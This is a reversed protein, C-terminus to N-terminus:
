LLLQGRTLRSSILRKLIQSSGDAVQVARATQWAETFGIENTFGMGGLTQVATDVVRTAMETAYLKAMAAESVADQGADFLRAAHLGLLHAALVETAREALPFSVGQHEAIRRGFTQRDRAYTAAADLAWRALGVCRGTNYLRGLATGQLGLDLGRGIDGIIWDRGVPLDDFELIAEGSGLHGFMRIVSAVRFGPQDTPVLFASIGGARARVQEPDTAAFILAYDAYPGNTIWQKSGNIVFGDGDPRATTSMQWVDSGADAESMAFCITKEGSIIGPWAEALVASSARSFIHSPGTAWHAVADFALWHHMGGFRFLEEFAALLMVAGGGGGGLSEPTLMQYYGASASAVRIERRAAQIEPSYLGDSDFTQRPDTLIKGLKEERPLVESSVFERLGELVANTDEDLTLNGAL